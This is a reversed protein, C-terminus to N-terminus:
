LTNIRHTYPHYLGALHQEVVEVDSALQEVDAAVSGVKAGVNLVLYYYLLISIQTLLLTIFSFACACIYNM